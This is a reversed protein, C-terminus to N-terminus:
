SDILKKARLLKKKLFLYEFEYIIYSRMLPCITQKIVNECHCNLPFKM